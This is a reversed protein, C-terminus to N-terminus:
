KGGLARAVALKREYRRRVNADLHKKIFDDLNIPKRNKIAQAIEQAADKAKLALTLFSIIESV